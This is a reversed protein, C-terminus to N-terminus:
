TKLKRQLMIEVKLPSRVRSTKCRRDEAYCHQGLLQHGTVHTRVIKYAIKANEFKSRWIAFKARTTEHTVHRDDTIKRLPM